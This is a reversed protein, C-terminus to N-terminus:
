TSFPPHHIAEAHGMNIRSLITCRSPLAGRHLVKVPAGFSLDYAMVTEAVFSDRGFVCAQFGRGNSVFAGDYLVALNLMGRRGLRTNKGLVSANCIAHEEIQAGDGVVAGRVVAMPGIQVGRGIM